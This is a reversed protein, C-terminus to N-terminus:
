FKFTVTAKVYDKEVVRNFRPGLKAPFEQKAIEISFKTKPKDLTLKVGISSGETSKPGVIIRPEVKKTVTTPNMVLLALSFM